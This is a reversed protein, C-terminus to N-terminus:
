ILLCDLKAVHAAALIKGTLQFVAACSEEENVILSFQDGGIVPSLRLNFFMGLFPGYFQLDRPKARSSLFSLTSTPFPGNSFSLAATSAPAGKAVATEKLL